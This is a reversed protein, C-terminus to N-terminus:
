YWKKIEKVATPSSKVQNLMCDVVKECEVCDAPVSQSKDKQSLYGFWYNCGAKETEEIKNSCHPCAYYQVLKPETFSKGCKSCQRKSRGEVTSNVVFAAETEMRFLKIARYKYRKLGADTDM